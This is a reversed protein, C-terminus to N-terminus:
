YFGQMILSDRLSLYADETIYQASQPEFYQTTYDFSFIRWYVLPSHGRDRSFEILVSGAQNIYGDSFFEPTQTM